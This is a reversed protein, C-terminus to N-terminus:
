QCQMYKEVIWKSHESGLFCFEFIDKYETFLKQILYDEHSSIPIVDFLVSADQKWYDMCKFFFNIIALANQDGFKKIHLSLIRHIAPISLSFMMPKDIHEMLEESIRNEFEINWEDVWIDNKQEESM